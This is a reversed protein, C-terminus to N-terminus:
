PNSVGRFPDLLLSKLNYPLNFYRVNRNKQKFNPYCSPKFNDSAITKKKKPPPIQKPTKQISVTKILLSKFKLKKKNLIQRTM